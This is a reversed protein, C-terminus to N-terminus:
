AAALITKTARLAAEYDPESTIEPVIQRYAVRGDRGVVFIARAALGALPGDAILVGYAKAFGKDKFDSATGLNRIGETTCFRGMAFPLDMSVVTVEVGEVGAAAQNFKRAETSCVPTDLSPVVVLIQVKEKAGGVLLESLDPATLKVAPAADGESIERGDLRVPNGKLNTIAM